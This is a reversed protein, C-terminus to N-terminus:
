VYPIFERQKQISLSKSIEEMKDKEDKTLWRKTKNLQSLIKSFAKEIEEDSAFILDSFKMFIISESIKKYGLETIEIRGSWKSTRIVKPLRVYYKEDSYRSREIQLGVKELPSKIRNCMADFNRNNQEISIKTLHEKGFRFDTNTLCYCGINQMFVDCNMCFYLPYVYDNNKIMFRILPGNIGIISIDEDSVQSNFKKLHSQVFETYYCYKLTESNLMGGNEMVKKWIDYHNAKLWYALGKECTLIHGKNLQYIKEAEEKCNELLNKFEFYQKKVHAIEGGSKIYTTRLSNLNYLITEIDNFLKYPLLIKFNKFWDESEKVYNINSLDIEDYEIRRKAEVQFKQQENYTRRIKAVNEIGPFKKICESGVNLDKGNVKNHIYFVFKNKTRCLQCRIEGIAENNCGVGIWENKIEDFLLKKDKLIVARAKDDLFENKFFENESLVDYTQLVAFLNGYMDFNKGAESNKLLIMEDRRILLKSM